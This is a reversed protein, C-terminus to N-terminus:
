LDEDLKIAFAALRKCHVPQTRLNARSDHLQVVPLFRNSGLVDEISNRWLVIEPLFM